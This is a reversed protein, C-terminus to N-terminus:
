TQNIEITFTPLYVMCQTDPYLVHPKNQHYHDHIGLVDLRRRLNPIQVGFFMGSVGESSTNPHGSDLPIPWYVVYTWSQMSSRTKTWRKSVQLIGQFPSTVGQCDGDNAIWFSGVVRFDLLDFFKSDFISVPLKFFLDGLFIMPGWFLGVNKLTWVGEMPPNTTVNSWKGFCFENFGGACGLFWGPDSFVAPPDLKAQIKWLWLGNKNSPVLQNKPYIPYIVTSINPEVM